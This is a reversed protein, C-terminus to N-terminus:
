YQFEICNWIGINHELAYKEAELLLISAKKRDKLRAYGSYLLEYEFSQNFKIYLITDKKQTIFYHSNNEIKSIMFSKVSDSICEKYGKEETNSEPMDLNLPKLHFTDRTLLDYAMYDDGDVVKYIYFNNSTTTDDMFLGLLFAIIISIIQALSKNSEM